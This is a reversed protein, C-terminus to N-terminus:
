LEIYDTFSKYFCDSCFAHNIVRDWLIPYYHYKEKIKEGCIECKRNKNKAKKILCRGYRKTKHQYSFVLDGIEESYDMCILRTQLEIKSDSEESQFETFEPILENADFDVM